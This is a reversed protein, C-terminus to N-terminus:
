KRAPATRDTEGAPGRSPEPGPPPTDAPKAPPRPLVLPGTQGCGSLTAVSVALGATLIIGALRVPLAQRLFAPLARFGGTAPRACQGRGRHDAHPRLRNM